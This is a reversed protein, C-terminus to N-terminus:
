ENGLARMQHKFQCGRGGGGHVFFVCAEDGGERADDRRHIVRLLKGRVEVLDHGFQKREQELPTLGHLDGSVEGAM